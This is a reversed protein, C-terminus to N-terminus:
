GLEQCFVRARLRYIEARESDTQALDILYGDEHWPPPHREIRDWVDVEPKTIILDRAGGSDAVGCYDQRAGYPLCPATKASAM